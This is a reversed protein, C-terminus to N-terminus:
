IPRVIIKGGVGGKRKQRNSSFGGFRHSFGYSLLDGLKSWLCASLNKEYWLDGVLNERQWHFWYVCFKQVGCLSNRFSPIVKKLTKFNVM